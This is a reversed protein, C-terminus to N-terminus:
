HRRSPIVAKEWKQKVDTLLFANIGFYALYNLHIMIQLPLLFSFVREREEPPLQRSETMTRYIMKM